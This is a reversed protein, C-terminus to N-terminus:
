TCDLHAAIAAAVEAAHTAPAMHGAEPVVLRTVDPLRRALEALIVDIVPPSKAGQMLLVPVALAELRGARLLGPGDEILVPNGAWILGIRQVFYDRQRESLTEWAQGAGWLRLFEQTARVRDGAQLAAEAGAMSALYRAFEPSGATRAACFLVPEFLSLSRVREPYELALRLCVTAGFSHGILDVPGGGGPFEGPGGRSVAGPGEGLFMRALLDAGIRTTLDHLDERGDWNPSRGHGPQDFGVMTLRDGLRGAVGSWAGSHALSCHLLLARRAGQGMVMVHAGADAESGAVADRM